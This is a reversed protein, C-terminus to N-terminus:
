PWILSTGAPLQRMQGASPRDRDAAHQRRLAAVRPSPRDFRPPLLDANHLVRGERALVERQFYAPDDALAVSRAASRATAPSELEVESIVGLATAAWHRASRSRRERQPQGVFRHPRGGAGAAARRPRAAWLGMASMVAM